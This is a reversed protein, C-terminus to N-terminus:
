ETARKTAPYIVFFSLQVMSMAVGIGNPIKIYVDDVLVGYLLWQSSVVMNGVCLPFPLSESSKNRIVGGLALLPAGLSAINMLMCVFGLHDIRDNLEYRDSTTYGYMVLFLVLEFLLIRNLRRRNRTMRYYYFLYAAEIVVGIFNISIITRDAKLVGYQTWFCCSIFTLLFPAADTGETGGKRRIRQCIEVGCLFLAITSLIASFSLADVLAVDEFM